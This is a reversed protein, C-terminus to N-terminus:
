TLDHDRRVVFRKVEQSRRRDAVLLVDDTEVIALGEVGLLAVTRGAGAQVLNGAAEEVLLRGEGILLNGASDGEGSRLEYLAEWSGVDSWGVELRFVHCPRATKEMIGHDISISPLGAYVEELVGEGEAEIRALGAALEPLHLAMEALITEATFLFIGSNWLFNGAVLYSLATEPDPKEVFRELPAYPVGEVEGALGTGTELYGYGTEPRTPVVGLTVISGRRAVEAACELLRCFRAVDAIYHDAPLVILLAEPDRRRLEIAALGVCAATNRGFPEILVHTGKGDLLYRTVAEHQRGVVVWSRDAPVVSSIRELTEELMTQRGTIRLFQKPLHARSAPWFRTGSGGAMVVGYISRSM